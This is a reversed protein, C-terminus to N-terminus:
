AADKSRLKEGLHESYVKARQVDKMRFAGDAPDVCQALVELSEVLRKLLSLEEANMGGESEPVPQNGM